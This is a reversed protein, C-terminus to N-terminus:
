KECLAYIIIISYYYADDWKVVIFNFVLYKNLFNWFEIFLFYLKFIDFNIFSELNILDYYFILHYTTQVM